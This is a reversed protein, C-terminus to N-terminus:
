VASPQLQSVESQRSAPSSAAVWHPNRELGFYEAPYCSRVWSEPMFQTVITTNRQAGIESKLETRDLEVLETRLDGAAETVLPALDSEYAALVAAIDIAKLHCAKRDDSATYLIHKGDPSWCPAYDSGQNETLRVPLTGDSKMLWIDKDRDSYPQNTDAVFQRNSCFAIFKGDPSAAPTFDAGHDLNIQTKEQSHLDVHWIDADGNGRDSSWLLGRGNATWEVHDDSGAHSTVQTRNEGDVNMIWIDNSGAENSIFAIMTGDPSFAPSDTWGKLDTLQVVEGGAAPVKFIEAFGTRHSVFVIWEGDPSWKPKDNWFDGFTLQNIERTALGLTWIDYDCTKGSAFAIKGTMDQAM